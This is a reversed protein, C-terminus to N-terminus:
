LSMLRSPISTSAAPHEEDDGNNDGDENYDGNM